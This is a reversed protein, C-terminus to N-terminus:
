EWKWASGTPWVRDVGWDEEIKGNAFRYTSIAVTTIKEGPTPFGPGSEGQYTGSFSWRVAVRDGEAFIDEATAHLDPITTRGSMVMKRAGELGRPWNPADPSHFVFTPSFLQDIVDLNGRNLEDLARLLIAKNEQASM